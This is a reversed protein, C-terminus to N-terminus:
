VNARYVNFAREVKNALAVIKKLLAPDVQKELYALYLLDIERAVVPDDIGGNMKIQKLQKFAEPNALAEDIRNQAREKEKFDEDKGTVNANWWALNGAVELPRVKEEHSKIFQRAHQTADADLAVAFQCRLVFLALSALAIPVVLRLVLM